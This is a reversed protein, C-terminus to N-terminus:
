NAAAVIRNRNGDVWAALPALVRARQALGGGPTTGRRVREARHRLSRAQRILVLDPLAAVEAPTASGGQRYGAM